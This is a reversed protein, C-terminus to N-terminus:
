RKARRAEKEAEEKRYEKYLENIKKKTLSATAVVIEIEYENYEDDLEGTRDLIKMKCGFYEEIDEVYRKILPNIKQRKYIEEPVGRKQFISLSITPKGHSKYSDIVLNADGYLKGAGPFWFFKKKVLERVMDVEDQKAELIDKFSKM